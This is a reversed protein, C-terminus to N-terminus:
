DVGSRRRDALRRVRESVDRREVDAGELLEALEDLEAIERRSADQLARSMENFEAELTRLNDDKRLRVKVGFRGRGIDKLGRGLKYAAGATKHTELITVLFVGALFVISAAVVLSFELRNQSRLFSALEPSEKILANTGHLRATYLTVNLLILLVFAVAATMGAARLQTRKEVLFQRRLGLVARRGAPAQASAEFFAPSDRLEDVSPDASVSEPIEKTAM